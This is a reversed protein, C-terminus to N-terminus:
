NNEKIIVQQDQTGDDFNTEILYLGQDLDLILNPNNIGLSDKHSITVNSNLIGDNFKVVAGSLASKLLNSYCRQAHSDDIQKIRIATNNLHKIKYFDSIDIAKDFSYVVDGTDFTLDDYPWPETRGVSPSVEDECYVFEYDFGPQFLPPKEGAAESWCCTRYIGTYPEYLSAFDTIAVLLDPDDLIDEHMHIVQGITFYNTLCEYANGMNNIVDEPFITYAVGLEDEEEGTYDCDTIFPYTSMGDVYFHFGSNANTDVIADGASNANFAPNPTGDPLFQIRTTHENNSRTHKLGLNHGIEHFLIPSTLNGIKLITMNSGVTRAAGGFESGYPVYINLADEQKYGNSTAYSWFDSFQCRGINGYGNPDVAGTVTECVYQELVEDWVYNELPLDAPTNFGDYGRYKFFIKYPNYQINLSAIAELLKDESFVASGYGGFPDRVQWFFVNLVVPDFSDLLDPDVSFSHIGATVPLGDDQTACDYFEQSYVTITSLIFISLLYILKRM